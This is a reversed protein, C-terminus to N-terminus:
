LSKEYALPERGSAEALQKRRSELLQIPDGRFEAATQIQVEREQALKFVPEIQQRWHFDRTLHHDIILHRVRTESLLRKLAELRTELPCIDPGSRYTVPGDLYIVDPDNELIFDLAEGTCAGAIESTYVFSAKGESVALQIVTDAAHEHAAVPRSFVLRTNGLRFLRGDAYEITKSQTKVDALWGFAAKRRPASVKQNPNKLFLTRDALTELPLAEIQAPHFHTYVLVRASESFLRVRRALKEATWSEVALPTLGLREEALWIGPDILIRTDATEVFTAMSRVGMSEAALPTIQM